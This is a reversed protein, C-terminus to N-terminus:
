QPVHALLWDELIIHKVLPARLLAARRPLLTQLWPRSVVYSAARLGRSAQTMAEVNKSIREFTAPIINPAPGLHIISEIGMVLLENVVDWMRQPHDIWRAILDRANYDNYAITGTVMSLVEPHPKRIGGPITLLMKSARNPINREWMIPTHLPPWRHENERLSLRVHTIESMRERFRQLTSRNGLVLLSNPALQASVGIIGDGESNISLCLAEARELPIAEGKSFLIGMVVDHALAVCDGSVALPVQLADRLTFSGGAVLASIEGLSFGISVRAKHYDVGFCDHLLKLQAHEMALILVISEAYDELTPERGERVRRLLNVVRGTAESCIESGENLYAAVTNAYAPTALLEATRGLNVVNYGRFALAANSLPLFTSARSDAPHGPSEPSSVTPNAASQGAPTAASRDADSSDSPHASASALAARHATTGGAPERRAQEQGARNRGVARSAALWTPLLDTWPRHMSGM